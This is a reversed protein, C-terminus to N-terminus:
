AIYWDLAENILGKILGKDLYYKWNDSSGWSNDDLADGTYYETIINGKCSIYTIWLGKRRMSAPIQNRTDRRTNNIFPVYIHNVENLLESITKGTASDVINESTTPECRPLGNKEWCNQKSM